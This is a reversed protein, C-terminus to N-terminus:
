EIGLKIKINKIDQKLAKAAAEKEELIMCKQKIARLENFVNDINELSVDSLARELIQVGYSENFMYDVAGYDDKEKYSWISSKGYYKDMKFGCLELSKLFSKTHQAISLDYKSYAKIDNEIIRLASQKEKLQQVLGCDNTASEHKCTDEVKGRYIKNMANDLEQAEKICKKFWNFMKCRKFHTTVM